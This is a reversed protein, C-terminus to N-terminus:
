GGTNLSAPKEVNPAIDGIWYWVLEPYKALFRKAAEKYDIGEQDMWVLMESVLGETMNVRSLIATARPFEDRFGKRAVHYDQSYGYIGKDDALFKVDYLACLAHPCWGTIIIGENKDYASKFAAAMAAGGSPVLELKLGYTDIARQAQMVVGSGADVGIIKGSVMDRIEPKLLDAITTAPLYAPVMLGGPVPGYSMSIIDLKDGYKNFYSQQGPLYANSYLDVQGNALAQYALGTDLLKGEVQYGAAELLGIVVYTVATTSWQGHAYVIKKSGLPPPWDASQATSTAVSALAIAGMFATARWLNRIYNSM